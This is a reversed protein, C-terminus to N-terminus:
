EDLMEKGLDELKRFGEAKENMDGTLSNFINVCESVKEAKFTKLLVDRNRFARITLPSIMKRM